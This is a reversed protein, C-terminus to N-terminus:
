ISPLVIARGTLRTFDFSARELLDYAVRIYHCWTPSCFALACHPFALTTSAHSSWHEPAPSPQSNRMGLCMKRRVVANAEELYSSIATCQILPVLIGHQFPKTHSHAISCNRSRDWPMPTTELCLRRDLPQRCSRMLALTMCVAYQRM